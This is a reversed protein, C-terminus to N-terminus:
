AEAVERVTRGAMERCRGALEAIAAMFRDVAEREADDSGEAERLDDLCLEPGVAMFVPYHEPELWNRRLEELLDNTIGTFFVPLVQCNEAELAVHGVGPRGERVEFMPIDPHRRGEPHVGVVCANQELEDVGRALAYDNWARKSRDRVIPPFMAMGSMALNLLVGLPREYFFASRVPFVIRVPQYEPVKLVLESMIGFYDFYTRHNAVIMVGRSWDLRIANEIGAVRVRRAVTLWTMGMMVTSNYLAAQWRMHKNWFDAFNYAAREFPELADLQVKTPEVM